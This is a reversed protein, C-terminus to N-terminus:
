NISGIYKRTWTKNDLNLEYNIIRGAHDKTPPNKNSM